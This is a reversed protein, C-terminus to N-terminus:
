VETGRVDYQQAYSSQLQPQHWGRTRLCHCCQRAVSWLVPFSFAFCTRSHSTDCGRISRFLLVFCLSLCGQLQAPWLLLFVQLVDPEHLVCFWVLWAPSVCMRLQVLYGRRSPISFDRSHLAFEGEKCM